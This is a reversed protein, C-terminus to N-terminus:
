GPVIMNGDMTSCHGSSSGSEACSQSGDTGAGDGIVEEAYVRLEDAPIGTRKSIDSILTQKRLELGVLSEFDQQTLLLAIENQRGEPLPM